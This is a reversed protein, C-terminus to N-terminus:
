QNLGPVLDVKSVQQKTWAMLILSLLTLYKLSFNATFRPFAMDWPAHRLLMGQAPPLWLSWAPPPEVMGALWTVILLSSLALLGPLYSVRWLVWGLMGLGYVWYTLVLLCWLQFVLTVLQSSVGQGTYIQLIGSWGRYQGYALLLGLGGWALSWTVYFLASFALTMWMAMLWQQRNGLRPLLFPLTHWRAPALWFSLFLLFAIGQFFWIVTPWWDVVTGFPPGGYAWLFASFGDLSDTPSFARYGIIAGHIGNVLAVMGWWKPESFMSSWQWTAVRFLGSRLLGRIGRWSLLWPDEWKKSQLFLCGWLLTLVVGWYCVGLLFHKVSSASADNWFFLFRHPWFRWLLPFNQVIFVSYNMLWGALFGWSARGTLWAIGAALSGWFLWGLTLWTWTFLVSQPAPLALVPQLNSMSFKRFYLSFFDSWRPVFAVWPASAVMLVLGLLLSYTLTAAIITIGLAGLWARRQGLRLLVKTDFPHRAGLQAALVLHLNTWGHLVLFFNGFTSQAVDWFTLGRVGLQHALNLTSVLSYIVLLVSGAGVIWLIRTWWREPMLYLIVVRWSRASM